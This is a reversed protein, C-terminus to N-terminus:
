VTLSQEGVTLNLDLTDLTSIIFWDSGGSGKLVDKVNDNDVTTANLFTTGNLGGVPGTLNTIRTNYASASFWEDVIDDLANLDADFATEGGILLDEGTSGGGKLVDAGAGGILVDRGINGILKDDGDGGVALNNGKGTKLTDNGVEGFLRDNGAGGTLADNGTGGYLDVPTTIKGNVIIKDNGGLGRATISGTVQSQLFTGISAGNLTVFLQTLDKSPKIIIKDNGGTGAVFLNGTTSLWAGPVDGPFIPNQVEGTQASIPTTGGNVSVNVTQRTAGSTYPGAFTSDLARVILPAPDGYFFPEPLFRLSSSASLALASATGTVAGIDFWTAGNDTSYQWTGQDGDQPNGVVAIGGLADGDPDTVVEDFLSSIKRGPPNDTGQLVAPIIADDNLIPADNVPTVDVVITATNSDLSGDTAKFTFSDPGNFNPDPTYTFAGTTANDITVTGHAPGAVISYTLSPSDIDTAVLNGSVPSDESTTFSGNNAVPPDNVANVTISVTAVNSNAIGDNARFTFSDPGNYNANPTYIFTGNANVVVTGNTPDSVKIYTLVDGDVDTATVSGILVQDENTTASSNNAVPADNVPNVTISMTATNSDVTGDNVKFTFSDPGNYNLSPTYTFVGPTATPSVGGHAPGAVITYILSADPTEVDSVLPRLDITAATDENTTATGNNAVPVDNVANVTINVTAINSDLTGDNAKFTFSDSGNFNANPTYVFTGNANVVVTGSSPDSVKIFTLADGDVDTATVSGILPEDENTSLNANNAVPADNVASVNVLVTAVNSDVTSDNAKFTFADPGNYNLNPTYTYAGTTANTITVTGHAPQSVVSYTLTDGDVDSAILNGSATVDETATLSGNNAVPADNVATITISVTGNNSFLGGDFARYTFSDSGNYNANPTYTFEGTQSDLNVTGNTPPSVISFTLPDNEPDTGTLTASFATDEAVTFSRNPVSPAGNDNDIITGTATDTLSVSRGGLSTATSLSALFTEFLEHGSDDTTAVTVTRTGTEGAAYSVSDTASDYDVGGGTASQDTYSVDVNIGIDLPRDLSITFTATGGETVTVDGITFTATDNDTVQVTRAGSATVSAVSTASLAQGAFTETAEVTSDDVASVVINATAGNAAGAAFNAAAALYDANGPLNATVNVGLQETGTGSTTLGLTVAVNASSGGEAVSTTGAAISVSASDNDTVNVTASGLAEIVASTTPLLTGTLAEITQEVTRDNIALIEINKASPADGPLWTVTSATFDNTPSGVTADVQTALAPTGSGTTTFSLTATITGQVPSGETVNATGSYTLVARDNELIEITQSGSASVNAGNSVTIALAQGPFSETAPEVFLDDVAAVVVNQVAGTATGAAFTAATSTYDANGPLNASISVALQEAGTGNTTLTLTAPINQSAGGETLTTTGNPISVSASDNDNVNIQESGTANVNAGGSATIALAQSAFTETTAEVLRDNVASVVVNATAGTLSGVPFSAAVSSYDANGPLNASVAVALEQAGSGTTTLTLTAQVNQTAGGETVTTTGGVISVTASDNDTVNVAATGASSFNAATTVVHTGTLNEVLQEVLQDDTATITINKTDPTDGANWTVTDATFDSTASTVSASVATDLGATGSGSTNLSLTATVTGTAGGETVNATGGFTVAASDNDVVDISRTGSAGDVTVAAGNANVITLTQPGGVGTETAVEVRLDDIATVVINATAGNGATAPFTAATRTYDVDGDGPTLNVVVPVGLEITGSGTATINLTAVVNQGAQGETATTTGTAISVTATENDTVVVTESGTANVTAGGSATIALAQGTFTETAEVIRDDTASVVVNATANHVAGVAFTAATSSYDANGPLNASIAVALEAPGTGNTTLSLTAQVNQTAGGEAVTTTGGVISVTASDNEAVDITRTGSGSGVTVNAGNANVIALTQNGGVATETAAEVLQDDVATVQINVTAADGSGATFTAQTRTYDIDGDGPTLNVIVPVGLTPTGTGTTVLTLTATVNQASGGETVTTTGATIAVTASDNDDINITRTGSAGDVTVAAGNANVITLTQPGGVNTETTAEVIADDVATVVINATAGDGATAPFTAATRTYDVDGDGPTLNVVVPVGLEITGSGTATIDLTVVVNQGTQGETATTTGTAISVTATENDTVVVTESGTANVTAGNSTTIALAQGTFTETAEVIRDDTASVVVNATANHVAGVAFTAATSSYDANGPLNASIAVALEAPGTGNTTLSLTAQVNQTAGGEAVTTTGGAISVTASDNDVVDVTRTGSGSGVSVNAGNANVISLTQNGGKAAETAAEVLQDNVADIQINATAGDGSSAAFTAATLTYDVGGDGPTLNVVVPVGLTPTGTGTTVLTLTAVVNQTSGGETVTTTGATIAITASDNDNVVITQAGSATVLAGGSSTIALAEGAFTEQAEVIADDIASVVVNATAGSTSGANFTAAVSSYDANGPLNASVPVALQETGSGNTTLTLTVGVDATSGGETVTTTGPTTIAINATDDDTVNVAATGATTFVALTTVSHTGTLNEPSAEVLRDDVATVTINKTDPTDGANWTVTTATFDSTSSTVTAAVATDLGITGTGSTNLSLTATVVDSTPTTESVNATGGYTVTASDNETINFTHRLNGGSTLTVGDSPSNLNQLEFRTNETAEVRQDDVVTVAVNKFYNRQGSVLTYSDASTFTVTTSSFSYDVGGGTAAVGAVSGIDVVDVTVSGILDFDNTQLQVTVTPTTSEQWSSNTLQFQMTGIAPATRDELSDLRIRARRPPSKRLPRRAVRRLLHRFKSNLSM